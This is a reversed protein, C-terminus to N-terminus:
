PHFQEERGDSVERAVAHCEEGHLFMGNLLTLSTSLTRYVIHETLVEQTGLMSNLQAAAAVPGVNNVIFGRGEFVWGM